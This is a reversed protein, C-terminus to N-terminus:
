STRGPIGASKIAPKVSFNPLSNPELPRRTILGNPRLMVIAVILAGFLIHRFENTFRLAEPLVTLLAAGLIAGWVSQVGGFLLFIVVSLSIFFSLDHPNMVLIYHAQLAGATGIIAGSVMFTLTRIGRISVGMAAAALADDRTARAIYGIPSRDMSLAVLLAAIALALANWANTHLTIGTFSNAGGLYEINFALVVVAEGFALTVLKLVFMEMRCTMIALASCVAAGVIMSAFVAMPFPLGLRSTLVASLYGGIGSIAATGLSLQGSLNSVYLGLTLAINLLTFIVIPEIAISL